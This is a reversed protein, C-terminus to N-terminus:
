VVLIFLGLRVCLSSCVQLLERTSIYSGFRISCLGVCFVVITTTTTGRSHRALSAPVIGVSPVIDAVPVVQCLAVTSTTGM